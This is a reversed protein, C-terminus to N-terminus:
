GITMGSVEFDLETNNLILNGLVWFLCSFVDSIGLFCSKKKGEDCIYHNYAGTFVSLKSEQYWWNSGTHYHMLCPEMEESNFCPEKCLLGQHQFLFFLICRNLEAYAKYIAFWQIMKKFKKKRQAMKRQTLVYM